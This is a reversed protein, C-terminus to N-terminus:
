SILCQNRGQSWFIDAVGYMEIKDMKRRSLVVGRSLLVM